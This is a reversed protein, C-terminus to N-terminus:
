RVFLKPSNKRYRVILTLMIGYFLIWATNVAIYPVVHLSIAYVLATAQYATWTIWTALSLEESQKTMLLLKIQPAMAIIAVISAILYTIEILPM